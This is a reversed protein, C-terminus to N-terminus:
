VRDGIKVKLDQVVGGLPSPVEMSAKDSELTVLPQEAKITDGTEVMVEIIPVDKFDGIDPVRVEATGAPASVPAPPTTVAPKVAEVAGGGGNLELTLIPVGRSVRDGLKVAVDKVIGASPSPVEMSAKDSELTILPAEAAIRDGPKVQIEIIPVDKFDGIDPVLVQRTEGM